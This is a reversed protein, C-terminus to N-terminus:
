NPAPDRRWSRELDSLYASRIRKMPLDAMGTTQRQRLQSFGSVMGWLTYARLAASAPTLVGKDALANLTVTMKGLIESVKAGVTLQDAKPLAADTRWAFHNLTKALTPHADEFKGWTDFLTEVLSWTYGNETIQDEILGDLTKDLRDLARLQLAVFIAAKSPYYRYLGGVSAGMHKALTAMTVADPGHQTLLESACSLLADQQSRKRDSRKSMIALERAAKAFPIRM